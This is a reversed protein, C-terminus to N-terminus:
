SNKYVFGGLMFLGTLVAVLFLLKSNNKRKFILNFCLITIFSMILYIAPYIYFAEAFNGKIIEIISRQLGCGLCEVNFLTKILCPLMYNELDM